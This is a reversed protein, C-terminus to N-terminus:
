GLRVFLEGFGNVAWHLLIPALLSGSRGRLECLVVGALGTFIVTGAVRLATGAAGNGVM